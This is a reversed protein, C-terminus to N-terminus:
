RRLADGTFFMWIMRHRMDKFCRERIELKRHIRTIYTGVTGVSYGLLVAIQRNAYGDAVLALVRRETRTLRWM